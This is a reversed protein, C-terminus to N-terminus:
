KKNKSVSNASNKFQDVIMKIDNIMLVMAQEETFGVEVYANFQNRRVKAITAPYELNNSFDKYIGFLENCVSYLLPKYKEVMGEILQKAEEPNELLSDFLSNM